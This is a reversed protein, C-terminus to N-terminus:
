PPRRERLAILDEAAFCRNRDGDDFLVDYADEAANYGQVTGSYWLFEDQVEFKGSVRAGIGHVKSQMAALASQTTALAASLDHLQVQATAHQEQLQVQATAHQEQLQVQATAHHERAHRLTEAHHEQLMARQMSLAEEAAKARMNAEVLKARLAAVDHQTLACRACGGIKPQDGGGGGGRSPRRRWAFSSQSRQKTRRSSPSPRASLSLSATRFRDPIPESAEPSDALPRSTRKASKCTKLLTKATRYEGDVDLAQRCLGTADDINGMKFACLAMQSLELAGFVQVSDVQAQVASMSSRRALVLTKATTFFPLAGAYDREEFMMGAIKLQLGGDREDFKAARHLMQISKEDRGQLHLYKAAALAVKKGDATSCAISSGDILRVLTESARGYQGAEADLAAAELTLEVEDASRPLSAGAAAPPPSSRSLSPTEFPVVDAAGSGSGDRMGEDSEDREHAAAELALEVEDASRPPSAGAAAPLPSSRSLSPTEFPVVDAAGSGSSDEGSEDSNSESSASGTSSESDAPLATGDLPAAAGMPLPLTKQAKEIAAEGTMAVWGPPLPSAGDDGDDSQEADSGEMEGASRDAEQEEASRIAEAGEASTLSRSALETRLIVEFAASDDTSTSEDSSEDGYNSGHDKGGSGREVRAIITQMGTNCKTGLPM